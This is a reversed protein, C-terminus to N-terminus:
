MVCCCYGIIVVIVVFIEIIYLWSYGIFIIFHYKCYLVIELNLRSQFVFCSLALFVILIWTPQAQFCLNKKFFFVVFNAEVSKTPPTTVIKLSFQLLTHEFNLSQNIKSSSLRLPHYFSPTPNSFKFCRLAPKIVFDFVLGLM